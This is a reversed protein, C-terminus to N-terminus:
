LTIHRWNHCVWMKHDVNCGVRLFQPPGCEIVLILCPPWEVGLDSLQEAPVLFRLQVSSSELVFEYTMVSSLSEMEVRNKKM